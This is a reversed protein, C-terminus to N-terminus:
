LVEEVSYVCIEKAKGKLPIMGKETVRIRDKLAEYVQESILIERAMAKGELRSATNVTDGIATYDMRQPSGINGVVADGVHVGIGFSVTRGYKEMLVKSLEDSGQRMDEAARVAKMVYDEQPLPAGWFAMAADGIFKDLTGGNRMICDAILTLYQNLIEVVESPTLKESMTTFGRIDVFLVAINVVRGGVM